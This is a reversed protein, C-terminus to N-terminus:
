LPPAPWPVLQPDPWRFPNNTANADGFFTQCGAIQQPQGRLTHFSGCTQQAIQTRCEEMTHTGGGPNSLYASVFDWAIRQMETAPGTPLGSPIQAGEPTRQFIGAYTVLAVFYVGLRTMHVDDSFVLDLKERTTGTIGPVQGAIMREVLDVLAAGVPLTSVRDSRGDAALTHNVKSAVCEWAFLVKKEHDIWNAPADKDVELWSHYLLTHGNPNGEILRDHFHRTFGVTDEWQVVGLLDHRDTLVLTDYKESAGLTGPSRLENIVNLNSSGGRNKGLSYGPWGSGQMSSGKTRVRLPSGIVIQENYDFDSGRSKAVDLVFDALPDDTLSHGSVFARASTRPTLAGGGGDVDGSDGAANPGSGADVNGNGNGAGGGDTSGASSGPRQDAAAACGVAAALMLGGLLAFSRKVSM